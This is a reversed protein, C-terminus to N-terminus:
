HKTAMERKVAKPYSDYQNNEMFYYNDCMSNTIKMPITKGFGDPNIVNRIPVDSDVYSSITQDNRDLPMTQQDVSDNM